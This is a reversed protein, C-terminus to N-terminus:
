RHVFCVGVHQDAAGRAFRHEAATLLGDVGIAQHLVLDRHEFAVHHVGPDDPIKTQLIVRGAGGAPCEALRVGRSGSDAHFAAVRLGRGREGVGVDLGVDVHLALLGDVPHDGGAGLQLGLDGVQLLLDVREVELDVQAGGVVVRAGDSTTARQDILLGEEALADILELDVRRQRGAVGLQYARRESGDLRDFGGWHAGRHQGGNDAQQEAEARREEDVM